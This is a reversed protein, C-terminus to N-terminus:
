MCRYGTLPRSRLSSDTRTLWEDIGLGPLINASPSGGNLEQVINLGDHLFVTASGSVTKARRRGLGDYQFSASVGGTLGALENRTNWTFTKTGDSALNGNADYTFSTGAWTAIQNAADYTASALATPLGTRAWSGGVSTRNGNLDYTYTLDGLTAAGLKYTLSTIQSAADYGYDLDRCEFRETLSEDVVIRYGVSLLRAADRGFARDQIQM